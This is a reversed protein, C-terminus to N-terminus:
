TTAGNRVDIKGTVAASILATRYERLKDIVEKNKLVLTEIRSTSEDLFSVIAQQEDPPPLPLVCNGLEEANIHPQAARTRLLDIQHNLVPVSLLAYAIFKPLPGNARVVMDYGTVAGDYEPPIISSDGTYAGSRVVVIDNTRLIPDREYPVDSPDVRLMGNEVIRGRKVNTARILPLGDIAERPPEGLGYRIRSILKLRVVKWHAPVPGLSEQGSDKMPVNPDLGNTVAQSILATRKEELLAILQEKKAIMADIRAAERDLFVAIARQEDLPPCAVQVSGLKSASLETFTSGQGWAQLEPRAILLQYYFFKAYNDRRPALSRCGQNTCLPIGAIALHGIPARTSLALTTACSRYGADTIRRISSTITNGELSGLDDPTIWAIDGDWFEPRGTDPTSGNTISFIRKVRMLEWGAPIEGLWEVGSDKYEPYVKWKM